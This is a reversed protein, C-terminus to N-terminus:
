QILVNIATKCKVIFWLVIYHFDLNLIVIVVGLSVNLDAIDKFQNKYESNNQIIEIPVKFFKWNLCEVFYKNVTNHQRISLRAFIPLFRVEQLITLRLYYLPPPNM